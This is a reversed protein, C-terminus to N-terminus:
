SLSMPLRPTDLECSLHSLSDRPGKDQLVHRPVHSLQQKKKEYLFSPSVINLGNQM